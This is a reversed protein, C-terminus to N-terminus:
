TGGPSCGAALRKCTLATGIGTQLQLSYVQTGGGWGGQVGSEKSKWGDERAAKGEVWGGESSERGGM